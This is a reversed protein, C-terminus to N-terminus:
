CTFRARQEGRMQDLRTPELTEIQIESYRCHADAFEQKHPGALLFPDWSIINPGCTVNILV